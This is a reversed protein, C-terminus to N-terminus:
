TDIKFFFFIMTNSIDLEAVKNYIMMLLNVKWILSKDILRGVIFLKDDQIVFLQELTHIYRKVKIFNEEKMTEQKLDYTYITLYIKKKIYHLCIREFTVVIVIKSNTALNIPPKIISWTSTLNDYISILRKRIFTMNMSKLYRVKIM